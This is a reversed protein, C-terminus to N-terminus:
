ENRDENLLELVNWNTNPGDMSLQTLRQPILDNLTLVLVETLAKANPRKVFHSCLYRTCIKGKTNDWYCVNLDMQEEQIVHNLSEDFSLVFYPSVKICKVLEEKFYPALGYNIYYSCKTKSLQFSKAIESDSFITRFLENLELCSRLFFHSTVVKLVWLIEARSASAPIVMNSITTKKENSAENKSASLKPDVKKFFLTGKNSNRNEAINKHKQGAAHSVLGSVGMNSIDFDKSCFQCYAKGDYKSKM